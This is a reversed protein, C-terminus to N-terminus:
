PLVPLTAICISTDGIQACIPGVSVSEPTCVPRLGLDSGDVCVVPTSPTPPAPCFPTEGGLLGFVTPLLLGGDCPTCAAVEVEPAIPAIWPKVYSM